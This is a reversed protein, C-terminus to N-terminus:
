TATPWTPDDLPEPEPRPVAPLADPDHVGDPPLQAGRDALRQLEDRARGAARWGHVQWTGLTRGSGDEIAEVIWPQRTAVRWGLVAATALLVLLVEVALVIVPVVTALLVAVLAIVVVAGVLDDLLDFFGSGGGGSPLDVDTTDISDRWRPGRWRPRWHLLRRRVVVDGHAM